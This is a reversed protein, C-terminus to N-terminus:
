RSEGFPKACFGHMRQETAKEFESQALHVSVLARDVLEKAVPEHCQETRWQGMLIVSASAHEGRERDLADESLALDM